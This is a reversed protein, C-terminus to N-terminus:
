HCDTFLFSHIIETNFNWGIGLGLDLGRELQISGVVGVRQAEGISDSHLTTPLIIIDATLPLEENRKSRATTEGDRKKVVPEHITVEVQWVAVNYTQM